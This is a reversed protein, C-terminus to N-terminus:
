SADNPKPAARILARIKLDNRSGRNGSTAGDYVNYRAGSAKLEYIYRRIVKPNLDLWFCLWRFSGLTTEQSRLWGMAERCDRVNVSEKSGTQQGKNIIDRVCRELIAALLNREPVDQDLEIDEAPFRQSFTKITM